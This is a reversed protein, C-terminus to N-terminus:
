DSLSPSPSGWAGQQRDSLQLQPSQQGLPSQTVQDGTLEKLRKGHMQVELENPPRRKLKVKSPRSFDQGQQEGKTHKGRKSLTLKASIHTYAVQGPEFRFVYTRREDGEEQHVQYSYERVWEYDTEEHLQRSPGAGDEMVPIDEPVLFAVFRDTQGKDSKGLSYSKVASREIMARREKPTLNSLREHDETPDNDFTILVYNNAWREFDPMVPLIEEATLNPNSQHVPPKSAADFTAEIAAIQAHVDDPLMGEDTERIAKARKEGVGQQKTRADVENSIYSTRMLWSLESGPKSHRTPKSRSMAGNMSIKTDEQLLVADEMALPVAEQPVCYRDVDLMSIPIAVDTDVVYERRPNEELCTLSYQALREPHVSAVLMRPDCPIEPLENRFRINCLFPTERHLRNPAPQGKVKSQAVREQEKRQFEKKQQQEKRRRRDESLDGNRHQSGLSDNTQRTAIDTM